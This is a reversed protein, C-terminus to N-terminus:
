TRKFSNDYNDNGLYQGTEGIIKQVSPKQKCPSDFSLTAVAFLGLHFSAGTEPHIDKKFLGSKDVTVCTSDSYGKVGNDGYFEAVYLEINAGSPLNTAGQVRIANPGELM